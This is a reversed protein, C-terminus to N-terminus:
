GAHGYSDPKGMGAPRCADLSMGRLPIFIARNLKDILASAEPCYTVGIVLAVGLVKRRFTIGHPLREQLCRDFKRSDTGTEGSFAPM